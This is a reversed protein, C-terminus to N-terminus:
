EIQHWTSNVIHVQRIIGTSTTYLLLTSVVVSRYQYPQQQEGVAVVAGYATSPITDTSHYELRCRWLTRVIPSRDLVGMSPHETHDVTTLHMVRMPIGFATPNQLIWINSKIAGTAKRKLDPYWPVKFHYFARLFMWDDDYWSGCKKLFNLKNM